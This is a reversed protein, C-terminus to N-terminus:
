ASRGPIVPVSPRLKVVPAPNVCQRLELLGDRVTGREDYARCDALLRDVLEAAHALRARSEVLEEADSHDFAFDLVVVPAPRRNFLSM